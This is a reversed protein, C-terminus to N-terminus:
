ITRYAPEPFKTLGVLDIMEEYLSGTTVAEGPGEAPGYGAALMLLPTLALPWGVRIRSM